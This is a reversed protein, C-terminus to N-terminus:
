QRKHKTETHYNRCLSIINRIRFLLLLLQFLLLIRSLRLLRFKRRFQIGNYWLHLLCLWIQSCFLRLDIICLCLQYSRFGVFIVLVLRHLQTDLIHILVPAIFEQLDQHFSVTNCIQQVFCFVDILNGFAVTFKKYFVFICSFIDLVSFICKFFLICLQFAQLIFKRSFLCIYFLKKSIFINLAIVPCRLDATISVLQLLQNCCSLRCFGASFFCFCRCSSLSCLCRRCSLCWSRWACATWAAWAICAAICTCRSGSWKCMRYRSCRNGTAKASTHCRSCTCCGTMVSDIITCSVSCCNIRSIGTGNNGCLVVTCTSIVDYDIVTISHLCPILMQTRHINGHSLRHCSTLHDSIDTRGSNGCSWM